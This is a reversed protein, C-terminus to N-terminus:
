AQGPDAPSLSEGRQTQRAHEFWRARHTQSALLLNLLKRHLIQSVVVAAFGLPYHRGLLKLKRRNEPTVLSGNNILERTLRRGTDTGLESFGSTFCVFGGAGRAALAGAVAPAELNPVAIFAADPASPLEAVSRYFTTSSTSPRTPHVRWLQGTYGIARNGAEVADAWAGGILALSRPVLLRKIDRAGM